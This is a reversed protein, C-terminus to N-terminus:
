GRRRVYTCLTHICEYNMLDRQECTWFLNLINLLWLYGNTSHLRVEVGPSYGARWGDNPGDVYMDFSTHFMDYRYMHVCWWNLAFDCRQRAMEHRGITAVHGHGSDDCFVWKQKDSSYKPVSCCSCHIGQRGGFTRSSSHCIYEHSQCIWWWVFAGHVSPPISRCRSYCTITKWDLRHHLFKFVVENSELHMTNWKSYWSQCIWSPIVKGM